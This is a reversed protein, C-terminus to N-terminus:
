IHVSRVMSLACVLSIIVLNLSYDNACSIVYEAHSVFGSSVWVM